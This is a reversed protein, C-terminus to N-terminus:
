RTAPSGKPSLPRDDPLRLALLAAVLPLVALVEIATTIGFHDAVYGALSAGVGGMGIALGIMLGSVM